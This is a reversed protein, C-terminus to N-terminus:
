FDFTHEGTDQDIVVCGAEEGDLMKVAVDLGGEGVLPLTRGGIAKRIELQRDLPTEDGFVADMLEKRDM